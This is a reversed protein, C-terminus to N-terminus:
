LSYYFQYFNKLKILSFTPLFKIAHASNPTIALSPTSLQILTGNPPRQNTDSIGLICAKRSVMPEVDEEPKFKVLRNWAFMVTSYFKVQCSLFVMMELNTVLNHKKKKKFQNEILSLNRLTMFGFLYSSRLNPLSSSITHTKIIM